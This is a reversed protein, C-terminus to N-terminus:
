RAAARRRTGRFRRRRPSFGLRRALSEGDAALQALSELSDAVGPTFGLEHRVALAEHHLQERASAWPSPSCESSTSRRPWSGHTISRPVPWAAPRTSRRRPWPRRPARPARRRAADVVVVGVVPCHVRRERHVCAGRARHACGAPRGTAARPTAAAIVAPEDAPFDDRDRGTCRTSDNPRPPTIVPSRTSTPWGRRPSRGTSSGVAHCDDIALLFERRATELDGRSWAIFGKGTRAWGLFFLNDLEQATHDLEDIVEGARDLTHQTMFAREVDETRRRHGLRRRDRTRARHQRATHRAVRTPDLFVEAYGLTNLARAQAWTDGTAEAM